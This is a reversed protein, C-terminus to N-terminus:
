AGERDAVDHGRGDLRRMNSVEPFTEVPDHFQESLMRLGEEGGIHDLVIM